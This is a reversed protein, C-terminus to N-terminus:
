ESEDSEGGEKAASEVAELVGLALAVYSAVAVVKRPLKVPAAIILQSAMALAEKIREYLTPKGAAPLGVSKENPKM